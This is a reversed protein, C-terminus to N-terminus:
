GHSNMVREWKGFSRRSYSDKEIGLEDIFAENLVPPDIEIDAQAPKPHDFDLNLFDQLWAKFVPM